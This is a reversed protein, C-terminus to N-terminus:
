KAFNINLSVFFTRGPNNTGIPTKFPSDDVEDFLNDIGASLALTFDNFQYFDQRATLRWHQYGDAKGYYTYKEDQYRGFLGINLAQKDWKHNYMFRVNAYNQAVYRLREDDTENRADVYSYGGGATFGYPLKVDFLVDLGKTRAEEVNYHQRIRDIGNAEAEDTLPITKYDILDDVRNDYVSVNVSLFDNFYDIGASFYDSTQPDLDTNGLYLTKTRRGGEYEFYMEKLTPAKFGRSYTGRLNFDGLRYLTSVKPTVVQGFEEHNVYRLGAVLDFNKMLSIEDQAYLSYTKVEAKGGVVRKKARYIEDVYEAGVTLKHNAGLKSIWKLNLDKRQQDSQEVKHGNTYKKTDQNYLYNYTYRDSNVDLTLTNNKNLIHKAGFAINLDDFFYGYDSVTTPRKVDKEYWSVMGYVSTSKSINADLRQGITYDDYANQTMLDTENLQYDGAPESKKKKPKEWVYSSNKWGDTQKYSFNTHSSIKGFNLDVNNQQQLSNYDSIRTNNTVNVKRKSKKTIINIVGGIAESGYLSSSAGKVVEVREINDPNIRNLDNQGGVDGYMRRGDVLIVIFDNSLGNLQMNAGMKGPSFDFSPSINQLLTPMDPAAVRDVMKKSILETPVPATKLHHPTGTGTIVVEGLNGTSEKLTIKLDQIDGNVELAQRYKKFGSFSVNLEYQGPKVNRVLFTGDNSTPAGITTKNFYVNAGTLPSGNEDTVVGSVSHKQAVAWVSM